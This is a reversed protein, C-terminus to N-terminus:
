QSVPPTPTLDVGVTMDEMLALATAEAIDRVDFNQAIRGADRDNGIIDSSSAQGLIRSDSLRIATAQIDPLTYTRSGSFGPVVVERSSVLIELAVDAIRALAQRDKYAQSGETPVSFDKLPLDPILQTASGQDALRAGAHRLPRGFLREIDRLTQRDTLSFAPAKQNHFVNSVKGSKSSSSDDRNGPIQGDQGSLSGRVTVDGQATITTPQANQRAAFAPDAQFKSNSSRSSVDLTETRGALTLGTTRDVLDRNIHILISPSNLKPYAAKFKDIVAQAQEPTVLVPRGAVPQQEYSYLPGSPSPQIAGERLIPPIPAPKKMPTVNPPPPAPLVMAFAFIGALTLTTKM